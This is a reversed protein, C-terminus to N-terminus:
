PCTSRPPAAGGTLTEGAVTRACASGDLAIHGHRDIEVLVASPLEAAVSRAWAVPTVPDDANALLVVTADPPATAPVPRSPGEPWFACPRLENVVTAGVTAAEREVQRELEDWGDEGRPGHGDACSTALYAPFDVLQEYRRGQGDLVRGDGDVADALGDVTQRALAADYAALVLARDVRVPELRGDLGPLNGDAAEDRIAGAADATMPDLLDDLDDELERAQTPLLEALTVTPPVISDLVMADVREPHRALYELGLRTGYSLGLYSVSSEGTAARIAEMDDAHDATAMHDVLPGSRDSCSSPVAAALRDLSPRDDAEPRPDLTLLETLAPGCEVPTSAGTGRPDWAVVDFRDLTTEPLPLGARLADIGSAGPGGPNVLMLGLRGPGARSPRAALAVELSAGDPDGHDVPVVLTACRLGDGCGTWVLTGGPLLTDEPHSGCAVAIAAMVLAIPLTRRWRRSTRPRGPPM